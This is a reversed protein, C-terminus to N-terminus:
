GCIEPHSATSNTWRTRLKRCSRPPSVKSTISPRDQCAPRSTSNAATTSSADGIQIPKFPGLHRSFALVDQRFGDLAPRQPSKHTRRQQLPRARRSLCESAWITIVCHVHACECIGACGREELATVCCSRQLQQTVNAAHQRPARLWCHVFLTPWDMSVSTRPGWSVEPSLSSSM